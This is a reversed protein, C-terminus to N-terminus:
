SATSRGSSRSVFTFDTMKPNLYRCLTASVQKWNVKQTECNPECSHNMFRSCNGKLTADIIQPTVAILQPFEALM